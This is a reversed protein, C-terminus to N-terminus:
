PKVGCEVSAGKGRLSCTYLILLLTYHLHTLENPTNACFMLVHSATLHTARIVLPYPLAFHPSCPKSYPRLPSTLPLYYTAFLFPFFSTSMLSIFSLLRLYLFFFPLVQTRSTQSTSVLGPLHGPSVSTFASYLSFFVFSFFLFSFFLLRCLIGTTPLLHM